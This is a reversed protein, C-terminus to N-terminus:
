GSHQQKASHIRLMEKSTSLDGLNSALLEASTRGLLKASQGTPLEASTRGLQKASNGTPLEASNSSSLESSYGAPLEASNSASLRTANGALLQFTHPQSPRFDRQGPRDFLSFKSLPGVM